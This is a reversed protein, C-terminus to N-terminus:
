RLQLKDENDCIGGGEISWSSGELLFSDVMLKLQDALVTQFILSFHPSAMESEGFESLGGSFEESQLLFVGSSEEFTSGKQSSHVSVPKQSIFLELEIVNQTQCHVLNQVPSQLSSNEVFSELCLRNVLCSNQDSLSM